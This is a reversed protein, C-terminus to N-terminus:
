SSPEKVPNAPPSPHPSAAGAPPDTAEAFPGKLPILEGTVVATAACDAPPAPPPPPAAPASPAGSGSPTPAPSPTHPPPAPCSLELVLQERENLSLPAAPTYDKAQTVGTSVLPRAGVKLFVIGTKPGAGSIQVSQVRLRYGKRVQYQDKKKGNRSEVHLSYHIQEKKPASAREEEQKKREEAKRKNEAAKKAEQRVAEAQSPGKATETKAGPQTGGVPSFWLGVAAVVAATLAVAAKLVPKPVLPRQRHVFWTTREEEGDWGAGVRIRWNVAAGTFMPNLVRSTVSVRAKEGPGLVLRTRRLRSRLPADEAEPAIWLRVTNTANGTNQLVILNSSWLAGGVRRRVPRLDTDYFEGVSIDAEPVAVAAPDEVSAVRVAFTLSGPALASDRPLTISINIKEHNGPYVPLQGLDAAADPWTSPPGILRLCYADVIRSENWVRLHATLSGGPPIADEPVTLEARVSM